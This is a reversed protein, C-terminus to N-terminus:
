QLQPQAHSSTPYIIASQEAQLRIWLRDAHNQYHQRVKDALSWIAYNHGEKILRERLDSAVGAKETAACWQDSLSLPHAQQPM